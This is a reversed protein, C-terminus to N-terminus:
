RLISWPRGAYAKVIIGPSAIRHGHGNSCASAMLAALCAWDAPEAL